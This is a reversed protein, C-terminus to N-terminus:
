WPHRVLIPIMLQVGWNKLIKKIFSCLCWIFLDSKCLVFDYLLKLNILLWSDTGACSWRSIRLRCADSEGMPVLDHGSHEVKWGAGQKHGSFATPFPGFEPVKFRHPLGLFSGSEPKLYRRQGSCSNQTNPTHVLLHLINKETEEEGCLDTKGTFINKICFAILTASSTSVWLIGLHYRIWIRRGVACEHRYYYM